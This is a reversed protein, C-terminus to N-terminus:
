SLNIIAFVVCSLFFVLLDFTVFFGFILFYFCVEVFESQTDMNSLLRSQEIHSLSLRGVTFLESSDTDSPQHHRSKSSLLQSILGLTDKTVFSSSSSDQENLNEDQHNVPNKGPSLSLHLDGLIESISKNQNTLSGPSSSSSLRLNALESLTRDSTLLSLTNREKSLTTSSASPTQSVPPRMWADEPPTKPRESLKRHNDTTIKPSYDVPPKIQQLRQMEGSTTTYSLTKISSDKFYRQQSSASDVQKNTKNVPASTTHSLTQIDSTNEGAGSLWREKQSSSTHQKSTTKTHSLTPIDSTQDEPSLLSLSSRLPVHRQKSPSDHPLSYTSINQSQNFGVSDRSLIDPFHNTTGATSLLEVDNQLQNKPINYFDRSTSRHFQNSLVSASDQSSHNESQNEIRSREPLPMYSEQTLSLFELRSEAADPDYQSSHKTFSLMEPSTDRFYSMVFRNRTSNNMPELSSSILDSELLEGGSTSQGSSEIIIPETGGTFVIPSPTTINVNKQERHQQAGGEYFPHMKSDNENDNNYAVDDGSLNQTNLDKMFISSSSSFSAGDTLKSKYKNDSLRAGAFRSDSNENGMIVNNDGNINNLDVEKEKDDLASPPLRKFSTESMEHSTLSGSAHRRQNDFGMSPVSQPLVMYETGTRSSNSLSKEPPRRTSPEILGLIMDGNQSLSHQQLDSDFVAASTSVMFNRYSTEENEGNGFRALTIMDGNQTLSHQQLDGNDFTASTPVILSRYSTGESSINDVNQTLSHQQLGGDDVAPEMFSHYSFGEGSDQTLTFQDLGNQSFSHRQQHHTSPATEDATANLFQEKMTMSENEGLISTNQANHNTLHATNQPEYNLPNSSDQTEFNTMNQASRAEYNTLNQANQFDFDDFNPNSYSEAPQQLIQVESATATPSPPPVDSTDRHHLKNNSTSENDISSKDYPYSNNMHFSSILSEQEEAHVMPMQRVHELLARFRESGYSSFSACFRDSNSLSSRDVSGDSKSSTTNKSQLIGDPLIDMTMMGNQSLISMNNQLLEEFTVTSKNTNSSSSDDGVVVDSEENCVRAPLNSTIKNNNLPSHVPELNQFESGKSHHLQADNEENSARNPVTPTNNINNNNTNILPSRVPELNQFESEKSHHLQQPSAFSLMPSPHQEAQSQPQLASPHRTTTGNVSVVM